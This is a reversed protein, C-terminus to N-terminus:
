WRGKPFATKYDAANLQAFRSNIADFTADINKIEANAASWRNGADRLMQFLKQTDTEAAIEALIADLSKSETPM